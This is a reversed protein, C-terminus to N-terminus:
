NHTGEETVKGGLSQNTLSPRATYSQSAELECFDVLRQQGRLASISPTHTGGHWANGRIQEFLTERQAQLESIQTPQSAVLGWPDEQGQGGQM